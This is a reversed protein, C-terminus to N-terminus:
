AAEVPEDTPIVESIRWEKPVDHLRLKQCTTDSVAKLVTEPDVRNLEKNQVRITEYCSYILPTIVDVETPADTLRQRFHKIHENMEHKYEVPSLMKNASSPQPNTAITQQTGGRKTQKTCAMQRKTFSMCYSFKSKPQDRPSVWASLFNRVKRAM